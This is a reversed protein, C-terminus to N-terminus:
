LPTEAGRRLHKNSISNMSTRAAHDQTALISPPVMSDNSMTNIEGNTGLVSDGGSFRNESGLNM